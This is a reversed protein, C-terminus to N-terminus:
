REGMAGTAAGVALIPLTSATAQCPHAPRHSTPRFNHHMWQPKWEASGYLAAALPMWGHSALDALHSPLRKKARTGFGHLIVPRMFDPEIEMAQYMKDGPLVKIVVEGPLTSLTPLAGQEYAPQAWKHFNPQRKQYGNLIGRLHGHKPWIGSAPVPFTVWGSWQGLLSWAHCWDAAVRTLTGLLPSGLLGSSVTMEADEPPRTTALYAEVHRHYAETITIILEDPDRNIDMLESMSVPSTHGSRLVIVLGANIETFAESVLLVGKTPHLEKECHAPVEAETPDDPTPSPSPGESADESGRYDVQEAPNDPSGPFPAPGPSATINEASHSKSLNAPPGHQQSERGTDVSRARKHAPAIPSTPHLDTEDTEKPHSAKCNCSLWLEQIEFLTVPVCDSDILAFNIAPFLYVCADLIYTGAWTPHVRDLGTDGSIPVFVVTTLEAYPGTYKIREKWWAAVAPWHALGPQNSM